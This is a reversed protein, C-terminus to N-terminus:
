THETGSRTELEPQNETQTEKNAKAQQIKNKM